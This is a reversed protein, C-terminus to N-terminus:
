NEATNDSSDNMLQLVEDTIDLRQSSAYYIVNEGASTAENLVFDLDRNEAVTAIAENMRNYLPQLLEARRQQIQQQISQQFKNMSAQMQSLRQEAQKVEQESMASQNQQFEAVSDQFAATQQQLEQRKEEIFSNLQQQIETREPLQNLVEQTNMYGIKLQGFATTSAVFLFLFITSLLKRYM